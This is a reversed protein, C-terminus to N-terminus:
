GQSEYSASSTMSRDKGLSEWMLGDTTNEVTLTM